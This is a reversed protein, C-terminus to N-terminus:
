SRSGPRRQRHTSAKAWRGSPSSGPRVGARGTTPVSISWNCRAPRHPSRTEAGRPCLHLVRGSHEEGARRQGPAPLRRCCRSRGVRRGAHRRGAGQSRRAGHRHQDDRRAAGLRRARACRAGAPVPLCLAPPQRPSARGGHGHGGRRGSDPRCLTRAPPPAGHDAGSRLPRGAPRPRAALYNGGAWALMWLVLGVSVLPMVATRANQAMAAAAMTGSSAAPLHQFAPSARDLRRALVAGCADWGTPRPWPLTPCWRHATTSSATTNPPIPASCTPWCCPCRWCSFRWAWSRSGPSSRWCGSSIPSARATRERDALRSRPADRHEQPHRDVLRGARRLAPFLHERRHRLGPQPTPRCSSSPPLTSGSSPSSSSRRVPSSAQDGPAPCPAPQNLCPAFQQNNITSQQNNIVAARCQGNVTSWQGNVMAKSRRADDWWARWMAWAGLGAALLAIEEKVLATLLAAAVFQGWRGRMSRGSPGCSAAARGAARCSIRHARGIPTAAGASLRRGACPGATADVAAGARHALDAPTGATGAARCLSAAGPLLASLRGIAVAVVQLLLLARVDDWLWYIPSILVLIPEVHDTLRTAEYGNDTQALFRGRSSNWISQDIQGLDSRHTRMGAHLDWAQTTFLVVYLVALGALFWLMPIPCRQPPSSASQGRRRATLTNM